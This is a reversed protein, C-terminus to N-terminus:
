WCLKLWWNWCLVLFLYMYCLWIWLGKVRWFELLWVLWCWCVYKLGIDWWLVWWCELCFVGVWVGCCNWGYWWVCIFRWWWCGFLVGFGLCGWDFVVKYLVVIWCVNWIVIWVSCVVVICECVLCFMDGLWFSIDLLFCIMVDNEVFIVLWLKWSSIFCLGVLGLLNIICNCCMVVIVWRGFLSGDLIVVCLVVMLLLGVMGGLMGVICILGLWGVVVM